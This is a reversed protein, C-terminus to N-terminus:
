NSNLGVRTTTPLVHVYLKAHEEDFPSIVSDADQNHDIRNSLSIEIYM